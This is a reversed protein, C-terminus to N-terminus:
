SVPRQNAVIQPKTNFRKTIKARGLPEASSLFGVRPWNHLCFNLADTRAFNFDLCTPKSCEPARAVM